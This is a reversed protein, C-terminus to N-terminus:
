NSKKLFFKELQLRSAEFSQYIPKVGDTGSRFNDPAHELAIELEERLRYLRQSETNESNNNKILFEYFDEPESVDIITKDELFVKKDVAEFLWWDIWDEDDDVLYKLTKVLANLYGDGLEIVPHGDCVTYLADNFTEIKQYEKQIQKLCDLFLEKKSM